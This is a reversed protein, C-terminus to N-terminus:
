KKLAAIVEERFKVQDDLEDMQRSLNKVLEEASASQQLEESFIIDAIPGVYDTFVAEIIAKDESSIYASAPKAGKNHNFANDNIMNIIDATAPLDNVIRSIAGEHFQSKVATVSSIQKLADMGTLGHYKISKLEGSEFFLQLLKDNTLKLFLAGTAKQSWYSKIQGVIDLQSSM